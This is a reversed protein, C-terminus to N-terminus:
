STAAGKRWRRVYLAAILAADCVLLGALAPVTMAWGTGSGATVGWFLKGIAILNVLVLGWRLSRKWFVACYVALLAPALLAWGLKSATWDGTLSEREFALFEAVRPDPTDPAPFWFMSTALAVLTAAIGVGSRRYAFWALPLMFLPRIYWSVVNHHRLWVWELIDAATM